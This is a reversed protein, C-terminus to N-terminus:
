HKKPMKIGNARCDPCLSTEKWTLIGGDPYCVNFEKGCWICKHVSCSNVLFKADKATKDLEEKGQGMDGGAVNGAEVENLKKEDLTNIM